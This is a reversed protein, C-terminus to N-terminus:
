DKYAVAKLNLDLPIKGTDMWYLEARVAHRWVSRVLWRLFNKRGSPKRLSFFSPCAIPEDPEIALRAFGANLIVFELSNETFSSWHTFDGYRWRPSLLANANPVSLILRGKPRLAALLAKLFDIQDNQPIHELVDLLLVVDYSEPRARLWAPTEQTVEVTLGNARTQEAQEASYELGTLNKYGLNRMGMLAFGWGCGVDLVRANKDEPMLHGYREASVKAMQEAWEKGKENFNRYYISYDYGM